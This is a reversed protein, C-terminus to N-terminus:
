KENWKTWDGTKILNTYLGNGKIIKYTGDWCLTIGIIDIANRNYYCSFGEEIQFWKGYNGRFNNYLPYSKKMMQDAKKLIKLSICDSSQAYAGIASFIFVVLLFLIIKKM